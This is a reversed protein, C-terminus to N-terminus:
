SQQKQWHRVMALIATHSYQTFNWLYAMAQAPTIRGAILEQKIRNALKAQTM